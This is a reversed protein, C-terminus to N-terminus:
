RPLGCISVMITATPKGLTGLSTKIQDALKAEVLLAIQWEAKGRTEEETLGDEINSRMVSIQAESLPEPVTITVATVTAGAFEEGFAIAKVFDLIDGATHYVYEEYVQNTTSVPKPVKSEVRVTFSAVSYTINEEKQPSPASATLSTIVLNCNDATSFLIEDYEISEASEPFSAKTEDFLSKAQALQSELEALQNGLDSEESVFRALTGQETSLSSELNEQEAAQGSYRLYLFVAAIVFLVVGLVLWTRTSLKM